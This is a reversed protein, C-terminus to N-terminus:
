TRQTDDRARRPHSEDEVAQALGEGRDEVHDREDEHNLEHKCEHPHLEEPAPLSPEGGMGLVGGRKGVPLSPEGGLGLVGGGNWGTLSPEGGM